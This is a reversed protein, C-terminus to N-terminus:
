MKRELQQFLDEEINKFASPITADTTVASLVTDIHLRQQGTSQCVNLEVTKRQPRMRGHIIEPVTMHKTVTGVGKAKSM